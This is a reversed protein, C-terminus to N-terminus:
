QAHPGPTSRLPPELYRLEEFPFRAVSGAITIYWDALADAEDHALHPGLVARLSDQVAELM